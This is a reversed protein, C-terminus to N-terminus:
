RSAGPRTPEDRPVESRDYPRVFRRYEEESLRTGSRQEVWERTVARSALDRCGREPCAACTDIGRAIACPRVPCATDIRRADAREDRCGDCGIRDPPIRFGYLTFWGDSTRQRDEPGHINERFAPCLDCRYGCRAIIPTV